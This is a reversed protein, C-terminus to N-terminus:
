WSRHAAGPSGPGHGLRTSRVLAYGLVAFVVSIVAAYVAVHGYGHPRPDLFPYPYWHDFPGRALSYGFYLLPFALWVLTTSGGLAVVSRDVLFDLVVVIPILTHVVFNAWPLHTQLSEQLNTLLVHYVIGTIAMYLAVAGRFTSLGGPRRGRVAGLGALALSVAALLNSEVTFFSFFRVLSFSPNTRTNHVILSVVAVVTVAAACLRTVGLVQRWRM